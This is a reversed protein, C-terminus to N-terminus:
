NSASDELLRNLTKMLKSAEKNTLRLGFPVVRGNITFALKEGGIVWYSHMFTKIFDNIDEEGLTRVKNILEKRYPKLFGRNGITRGYHLYDSDILLQEEGWKRWRWAKVVKYEFYGWFAAFVLLMIRFQGDLPYFFQAIIALGCLTWAIVWVTFLKQKGEEQFARIKILYGESTDEESIRKM